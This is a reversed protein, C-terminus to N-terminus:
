RKVMFERAFCSYPFISIVNEEGTEYLKRCFEILETKALNLVSGMSGSIDLAIYILNKKKQQLNENNIVTTINVQCLTEDIEAIQLDSKIKYSKEM